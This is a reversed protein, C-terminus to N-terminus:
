KQTTRGLRGCIQDCETHEMNGTNKLVPINNLLGICSKTWIQHQSGAWFTLGAMQPYILTMQGFAGSKKKWKNSSDQQLHM